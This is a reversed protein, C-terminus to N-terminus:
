NPTECIEANRPLKAKWRNFIGPFLRTQAKALQASSQLVICGGPSGGWGEEEERSGAACGQSAGAHLAAEDGARGEWHGDAMIPLSIPYGPISGYRDVARGVAGAGACPYFVEAGSAREISFTDGVEHIKVAILLTVCSWNWKVGLVHDPDM